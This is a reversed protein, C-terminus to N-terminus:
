SHAALYFPHKTKIKGTGYKSRIEEIDLGDKKYRRTKAYQPRFYVM